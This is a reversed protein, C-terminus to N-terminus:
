PKAAPAISEPSIPLGMLHAWERPHSMGKAVNVKAQRGGPQGARDPPPNTIAEVMKQTGNALHPAHCGEIRGDADRELKPWVAGACFSHITMCQGGDAACLYIEWDDNAMIIVSEGAKPVNRAGTLFYVGLGTQVITQALRNTDTVSVPTATQPPSQLVIPHWRQWLPTNHLRQTAAYELLQWCTILFIVVGIAWFFPRRDLPTTSL